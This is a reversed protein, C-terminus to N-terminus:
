AIVLALMQAVADASLPAASEATNAALTVTMGNNDSGGAVSQETAELGVARGLALYEGSATKVVVFFRGLALTDVSCVKDKDYNGPLGFTVTHTRYKAGSDEVVLEDTYSASNKAVEIHSFASTSSASIGSITVGSECNYDLPAGTITAYDAIYLDKVENLQYACSNSKLLNKTLICSIAM